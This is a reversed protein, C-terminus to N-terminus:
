PAVDVTRTKQSTGVSNTVVLTVTFTGQSNYLYTPNQLSSAGSGDGFSWSWIPNCALNNMYTSADTFQFITKKKKGSTPSVSFDAEPAFCPQATPTPTPSPSASGSASGSPSPSPTPTASPSPSPSPTPAGVTGLAPSMAITASVSASLTIDRGGTFIVLIPTVLSFHGAVEVTATHPAVATGPTCDPSCSMTVDAPTVHVWSGEAENLTRCMIRNTTKDCPQNAEFSTPSVAAEMAGERAANTITIQSYWVRGLDIAGAVLMLLVPLILALEVLSQGRLSRLIWRAQRRDHNASM